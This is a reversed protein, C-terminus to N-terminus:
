LRQDQVTGGFDRAPAIVPLSCLRLRAHVGPLLSALVSPAHQRRGHPLRVKPGRSHVHRACRSQPQELSRMSTHAIWRKAAGQLEAVFRQQRELNLLREEVTLKLQSRLLLLDVGSEDQIQSLDAGYRVDKEPRSVVREYWPFKYIQLLAPAARSYRRRCSVASPKRRGGHVM